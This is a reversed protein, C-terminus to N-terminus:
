HRSKEHDHHNMGMDTWSWPPEHGRENMIMNTSHGDERWSWPPEPGHEKKHGYHNMDKNDKIHHNMGNKVSKYSEAALILFMAWSVDCPHALTGCSSSLLAQKWLHSRELAAELWPHPLLQLRGFKKWSKGARTPLKAAIPQIDLQKRYRQALNTLTIWYGSYNLHRCKELMTVTIHQSKCITIVPGNQFLVEPVHFGCSSLIGDRQLEVAVLDLNPVTDLVHAHAPYTLHAREHSVRGFRTKQNAGDRCITIELMSIYVKSKLFSQAMNHTREIQKIILTNLLEAAFHSADLAIPFENSLCQAQGFVIPFVTDAVPAFCGLTQHVWVRVDAWICAPSPHHCFRRPIM